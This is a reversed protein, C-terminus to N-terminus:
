PGWDRLPLKVGLPSPNPAIWFFSSNFSFTYLQDSNVRPSAFKNDKYLNLNIHCALYTMSHSMSDPSDWAFTIEQERAFVMEQRM